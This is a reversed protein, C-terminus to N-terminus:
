IFDYKKKDILFDNITQRILTKNSVDDILYGDQGHTILEIPGGYNPTIVPTGHSFSELITLGFTEIWQSPKTLVLTIIAERYFKSLDKQLSFIKLNNPVIINHM